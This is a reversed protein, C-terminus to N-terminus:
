VMWSWLTLFKTGAPLSSSKDREATKNELFTITILKFNFYPIHKHFIKNTAETGSKLFINNCINKEKDNLKLLEAKKKNKYSTVYNLAAKNKLKFHNPILDYGKM